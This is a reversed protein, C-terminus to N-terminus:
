ENGEFSCFKTQGDLNSNDHLFVLHKYTVEGSAFCTNTATKERGFIHEKPKINLKM